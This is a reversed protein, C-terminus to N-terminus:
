CTQIALKALTIKNGPSRGAQKFLLTVYVQSSEKNSSICFQNDALIEEVM